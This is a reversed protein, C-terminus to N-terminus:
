RRLDEQDTALVNGNSDKLTFVYMHGQAIWPAAQTGSQGSAFLKPQAGDVQVYVSSDNPGNWSINNDRGIHVTGQAFSGPKQRYAQQTPYRDGEYGNHYQQGHYRYGNEAIGAQLPQALRFTLVSEAPVDVRRGRTFANAGGGASARAGYLEGNIAVADLGLALDGDPMRKVIMEVNSGRPIVVNGYRDRVNRDVFGNFVRGDSDRAHIPQNTRVTVMTGPDLTGIDQAPYRRQASAMNVLSLSLFVLGALIAASKSSRM